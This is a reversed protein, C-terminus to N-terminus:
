AVRDPRDGTSKCECSRLWAAVASRRYRVKGGLRLFIPGDGTMRRKNFWNEPIGTEKSLDKVTLLFHTM